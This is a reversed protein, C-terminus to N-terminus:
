RTRAAYRRRLKRATREVYREVDSALRTRIQTFTAGTDVWPAQCMSNATSLRRRTDADFASLWIALGNVLDSESHAALLTRTSIFIRGHYEFFEATESFVPIIILPRRSGALPALRRGLRALYGVLDADHYILLDEGQSNQVRHIHDLEGGCQMQASPAMALHAAFALTIIVPPSM